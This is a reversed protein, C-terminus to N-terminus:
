LLILGGRAGASVAETRSRVGLKACISAVHFKATNESIGLARAINKNPYGEAVLQLVERERATLGVAGCGFGAARAVRVTAAALPASLAALGADAARVAGDLEAPTVDRGLCAWGRLDSRALRDALAPDDTLVVVAPGPDVRNAALLGDIVGAEPADVVLVGRRARGDQAVVAHGHEALM